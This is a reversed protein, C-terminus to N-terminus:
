HRAARVQLSFEIPVIVLVSRPEGNLEYPKFLAERVSAAAALDLAEHGSSREVLVERARGGVDVLVRLQVVGQLRSLRAAPPYRPRPPRLYQVSTVVLPATAAQSQPAAARPPEPIAAALTIPAHTPDPEVEIKIPVPEPLTVTPRMLDLPLSPPTPATEPDPAKPLLVAQLAEVAAPQPLVGGLSLAFLLLLHALCIAGFVGLRQIPPAASLRGGALAALTPAFNM